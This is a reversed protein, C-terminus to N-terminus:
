SGTEDEVLILYVTAVSPGQGKNKGTTIVARQAIQPVDVGQRDGCESVHGARL